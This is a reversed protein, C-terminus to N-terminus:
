SSMSRIYALAESKSQCVKSRARDPTDPEVTVGFIPQRNLGTGESLEAYGKRLKFYMLVDPTMFNRGKFVGQPKQIAKMETM